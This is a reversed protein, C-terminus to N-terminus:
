HSFCFAFLPHTQADQFSPQFGWYTPSTVAPHTRAQMVQAMRLDFSEQFSAEPIQAQWRRRCTGEAQIQDEM